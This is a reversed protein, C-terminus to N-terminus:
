SETGYFQGDLIDFIALNISTTPVIYKKKFFEMVNDAGPAMKKAKTNRRNVVRKNLDLVV